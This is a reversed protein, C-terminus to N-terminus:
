AGASEMAETYDGSRAAGNLRARHHFARQAAPANAPDGKWAKLAPAQLARGYSFSLQWPAGGLRNMANLHATAAED